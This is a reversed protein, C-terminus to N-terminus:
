KPTTQWELNEKLAQATEELPAIHEMKSKGRFAVAAGVAGVFAGVLVLCGWLPLSAPDRAEPPLLLNHLWYAVGLLLPIAALFGIAVGLVLLWTAEKAKRLDEKVEQRTLRLQQKLLEQFDSVIGSVLGTLSQDSRNPTDTAM